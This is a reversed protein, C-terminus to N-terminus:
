SEGERRCRDCLFSRTHHLFVRPIAPRLSRSTRVSMQRGEQKSAFPRSTAPTCSHTLTDRPLEIAAFLSRARMLMEGVTSASFAHHWWADHSASQQAPVGDCRGRMAILRAQVSRARQGNRSRRM